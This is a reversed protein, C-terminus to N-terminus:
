ASPVINADPDAERQDSHGTSSAIAENVLNRLTGGPEIFVDGPMSCLRDRACAIQTPDAILKAILAPLSKELPEDLVFGCGHDSIWKGTQSSAPAIPPCSYWGGEYLRNPLLWDSNKGADMFDGAWVVDVNEYIPALEDPWHYRGGFTMGPQAAVIQHFDPIEADAPYGRLVIDIADGYFKALQCLLSLSRACRLNGFWGIRLKDSRDQLSNRSPRPGPPEQLRNELLRAGQLDPHFDAFYESLFAPSSVWTGVCQRLARREIQRFMTGFIGERALLRHIDLCEYVVPTRLRARRRAGLAVLLMDLNRAVILDARKLASVHARRSGLPISLARHLYRNDFTQGLDAVVWDPQVCDTRHMAFGAVDLGDRQFGAVRRKVAADGWDHAFYAVLGNGSGSAGGLM